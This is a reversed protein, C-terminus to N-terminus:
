SSGRRAGLLGRRGEGPDRTSWGMEDLHFQGRDIQRVIEQALKSVSHPDRIHRLSPSRVYDFLLRKVTWVREDDTMGHIWSSASRDAVVDVLRSAVRSSQEETDLLGDQPGLKPCWRGPHGDSQHHDTDVAAFQRVQPSRTAMSSRQTNNAGLPALGFLFEWFKEGSAGARCATRM